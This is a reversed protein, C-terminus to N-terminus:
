GTQNSASIRGMHNNCLAQEEQGSISIHKIASSCTKLSFHKGHDGRLKQKNTELLWTRSIRFIKALKRARSCFTDLHAGLYNLHIQPTTELGISDGVFHLQWVQAAYWRGQHFFGRLLLEQTTFSLPLM